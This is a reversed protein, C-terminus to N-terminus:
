LTVLLSVEVQPPMGLAVAPVTRALTRQFPDAQVTIPFHAFKRRRWGLLGAGALLLGPLGAGLVPGPVPDVATAFISLSATSRPRIDASGIFYDPGVALVSVGGSFTGASQPTFLLTFDCDPASFISGDCFNTIISFPAGAGFAGSMLMWVAETDHVSVTIVSTQGVITDRFPGSPTMTPPPIILPDAAAPAALMFAALLATFATRM